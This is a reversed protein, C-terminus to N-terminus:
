WRTVTLGKIKPFSRLDRTAIRYDIWVATAAIMLDADGVAAGAASLEADIRAHIRAVDLDFPIVPIVDLLHEVFREARTRAVAGRLRHVGHLLESATIAAIALEEADDERITALDLEGREIAILVSTDILTGM